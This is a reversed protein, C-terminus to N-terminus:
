IGTFFTYRSNRYYTRNYGFSDPGSVQPVGIIIHDKGEPIVMHIWGGDNWSRDLKPLFKKFGVKDFASNWGLDGLLYMFKTYDGFSDRTEYTFECFFEYSAAKYTNDISNSRVKTFNLGSGKKIANVEKAIAKALEMTMQSYCDRLYLISDKVIESM